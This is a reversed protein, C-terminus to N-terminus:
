ILCGKGAHLGMPSILDVAPGSGGDSQAAAWGATRESQYKVCGEVRRVACTPIYEFPPVVLSGTTILLHTEVGVSSECVPSAM